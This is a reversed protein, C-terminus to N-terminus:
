YPGFRGRNCDILAFYSGSFTNWRLTFIGGFAYAAPPNLIGAREQTVGWCFQRIFGTAGVQRDCNTHQSCRPLQFARAEDAKFTAPSNASALTSCGTQPASAIVNFTM